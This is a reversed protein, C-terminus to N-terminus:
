PLPIAAIEALLVQSNEGIRATKRQGVTDWRTVGIAAVTPFGGPNEPGAEM